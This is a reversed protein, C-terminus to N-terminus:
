RIFVFAFKGDVEEFTPRKEAEDEVCDAMLTKVKDPMGKPAPPRKQVTKDAVLRLVALPDEDEYPERRSYVEFLIIGFSYTDTQANNECERRM